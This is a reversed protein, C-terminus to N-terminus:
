PFDPGRVVQPCLLGTSPDWLRIVGFEATELVNAITDMVAKLLEPLQLPTILTKTVETLIHLEASQAAGSHLASMM